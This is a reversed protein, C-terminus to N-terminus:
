VKRHVRMMSCYGGDDYKRSVVRPTGSASQKVIMSDNHKVHNFVSVAHASPQQFLTGM